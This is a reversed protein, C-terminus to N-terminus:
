SPFSFKSNFNQIFVALLRINVWSRDLREAAGLTLQTKLGAEDQPRVQISKSKNFRHSGIWRPQILSM